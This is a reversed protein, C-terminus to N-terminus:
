EPGSLISAREAARLLEDRLSEMPIDLAARRAVVVMWAGVAFRHRDKRISERLRRRVRNREVANGVKRSTIIGTRAPVGPEAGPLINVVLGPGHITRGQKRVRAFESARRLRAAKPFTQRM